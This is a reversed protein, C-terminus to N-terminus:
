KAAKRRGAKPRHRASFSVDRVEPSWAVAKLSINYNKLLSLHYGHLVFVWYDGAEVGVGADAFFAVVVVEDGGGELEEGAYGDEM